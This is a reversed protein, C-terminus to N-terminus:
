SQSSECVDKGPGERFTIGDEERGRLDVLKNRLNAQEININRRDEDLPSLKLLIFSKSLM